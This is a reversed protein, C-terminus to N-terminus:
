DFSEEKIYITGYREIEITDSWYDIPLGAKRKLYSLFEEVTPLEEWVSPLFTGRKQGETLIIGDVGPNLQSILDEENDFKIKEPESLVSINIKINQLEFAKLPPFRPDKFAASFTNQIIDDKLKRHAILSGICGRLEGNQTLTVFCAAKKDPINLTESSKIELLKEELAQRALRLLDLQEQRSFVQVIKQPEDIIFTAYGVVRAKDGATDGSNRLDILKTELKKSKACYILGKVPALGCANQHDMGDFKGSVINKATLSDKVSASQYDMFHSLDTSCVILTEEGGWVNELLESISEKSTDGVVLPLLTFDNLTAQLFPLHVELSHEQLHAHDMVVVERVKQAKESLEKDLPIKGLRTEYYNASSLAMGMFGVYHSPGLLVVKSIKDRRKRLSRYASAAISGSYIHGAHPAIIAKGVEPLDIAKNLLDNINTILDTKSSLYFTGAVAAKRINGM